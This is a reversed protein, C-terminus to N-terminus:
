STPSILYEKCLKHLYETCKFNHRIQCCGHIKGMKESLRVLFTVVATILMHQEDLHFEVHAATANIVVKIDDM